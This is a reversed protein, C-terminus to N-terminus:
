KIIIMGDTIEFTLDENASTAQILDLVENINKTRELVGTFLFKKKEISEFVFEVNYWRSLENVIDELSDEDFMLQNKVWSIKNQADVQEIHMLGKADSVVSQDNPKLIESQGKAEVAIEGEVLTTKVVSETTYARINFKTGYVMVDQARTKVLFKAGDHLISPSVEFYAEGYILEVIRTEGKTFSVPYKIKSESNLWVKTGDELEMFFRGGRPIKLFNFDSTGSDVGEQTNRSYIISEGNSVLSKNQYQRNKELVVQDGNDLTLIAKNSGVEIVPTTKEPLSQDRIFLAIGFVVCIIALVSGGQKFRKRKQKRQASEIKDGIAKKALEANYQNMWLHIIFNAQVTEQFFPFNQNLKLMEELSDLDHIGGERGLFKIILSHFFDRQRM